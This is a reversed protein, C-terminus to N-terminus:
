RGKEPAGIDALGLLRAANSGLLAEEEDDTLDLARVEEVPSHTGM